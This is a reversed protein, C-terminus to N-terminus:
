SIKAASRVTQQHGIGSPRSRSGKEGPPLSVEM